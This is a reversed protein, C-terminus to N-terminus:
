NESPAEIHDIVLVDVTAKTSELKLGLQEKVATFISPGPPAAANDASVNTFNASRDEPSWALALDYKGQLGTKDIVIRGLERNLVQTMQQALDTMTVGEDTITGNNSSRKGKNPDKAPHLGPGPKAAVLAYVPLEKQEWHVALKFRDALLQQILQRKLLIRQEYPLKDMREATQDDTKAEIDFRQSALWDPGGFIQPGPTAYADYQILTKLSVNEATLRGNNFGSHSSFGASKSAKIAAVEFAPASTVADAPKPAPAAVQGLGSHAAIAVLAVALLLRQRRLDLPSVLRETM